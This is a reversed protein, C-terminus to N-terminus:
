PDGVEERAPAEERSAAHHEGAPGPAAARRDRADLDADAAPPGFRPEALRASGPRPAAPRELPVRTRALVREGAARGVGGAVGLRGRLRPVELAHPVVQDLLDRDRDPSRIAPGGSARPDSGSRARAPARRCPS